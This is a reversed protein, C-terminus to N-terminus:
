GAWVRRLEAGRARAPPRPLRPGAATFPPLM